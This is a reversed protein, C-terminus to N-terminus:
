NKHVELRNENKQVKIEEDMRKPLQIENSATKERWTNKFLKARKQKLSHIKTSWQVKFRKQFNKTM